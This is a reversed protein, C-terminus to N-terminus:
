LPALHAAKAGDACMNSIFLSPYISKEEEKKKGGIFTPACVACEEGWGRKSASPENTHHNHGQTYKCAAVMTCSPHSPAVTVGM